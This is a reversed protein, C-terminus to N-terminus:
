DESLLATHTDKQEFGQVCPRSCEVVDGYVCTALLIIGDWCFTDFMVKDLFGTLYDQHHTNCRLGCDDWAKGRRTVVFAVQFVIGIYFSTKTYLQSAICRFLLGLPAGYVMGLYGFIPKKAASIILSVRYDVERGFVQERVARAAKVAHLEREVLQIKFIKDM